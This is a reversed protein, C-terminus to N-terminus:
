ASGVLYAERVWAAFEEDLDECHRLHFRHVYLRDTYRTAEGFRRDHVIRRLGLYGTLGHATTRAGAFDRRGRFTMSTASRVCTVPGCSEVLEVFRERLNSEM